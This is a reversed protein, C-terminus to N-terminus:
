MRELSGHECRGVVGALLAEQVPFSSRRVTSSLTIYFLDIRATRQYGVSRQTSLILKENLWEPSGPFLAGALFLQRHREESLM